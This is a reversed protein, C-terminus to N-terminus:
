ALQTLGHTKGGHLITRLNIVSRQALWGIQVKTIGCVKRHGEPDIPRITFVIKWEDRVFIPAAAVVSAPAGKTLFTGSRRSIIKSDVDGASRGAAGVLQALGNGGTNTIAVPM